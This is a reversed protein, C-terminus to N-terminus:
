GFVPKATISSAEQGADILWRSVLACCSVSAAPSGSGVPKGGAGATESRGRDRGADLGALRAVIDIVLEMGGIAHDQRGVQLIDLM